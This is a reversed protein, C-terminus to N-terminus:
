RRGAALFRNLAAALEARTVPADPAFAGAARGRFIGAAYARSVPAQAWSPVRRWDTYPPYPPPTEPASDRFPELARVLVAAAEARTVPAAPRFTGDPYGNVLGRAHAAAVAPRAWEPVAAADAFGPAAGPRTPWGLLRVLVASFEARNVPRNPRFTGDPYGVMLNRGTLALIDREAWSGRIDTLARAERLPPFFLTQGAVAGSSSDVAVVRLSTEGPRRQVPYAFGGERLPVELRSSDARVFYVRDADTRGSVLLYGDIPLGSASLEPLPVGPVSRAAVGVLV